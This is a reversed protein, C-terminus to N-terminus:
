SISKQQVATSLFEKLADKSMMGSRVVVDDSDNNLYVAFSPVSRVGAERAMERVGDESINRSEAVFDLEQLVQNFVPEMAKCPACNDSYFKIIRAM